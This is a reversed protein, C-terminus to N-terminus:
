LILAISTFSLWQLRNLVNDIFHVVELFLDGSLSRCQIHTVVQFQSRQWVDQLIYASDWMKIIDTNNNEEERFNCYWLLLYLVLFHTQLKFVSKRLWWSRALAPFNVLWRMRLSNKKGSIIVTHISCLFWHPRWVAVCALM